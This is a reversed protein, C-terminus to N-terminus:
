KLFFSTPRDLGIKGYDFLGTTIISAWLYTRFNSNTPFIINNTYNMKTEVAGIRAIHPKPTKTILVNRIRMPFYEWSM